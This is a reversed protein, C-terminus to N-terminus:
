CLGTSERYLDPMLVLCGCLVSLHHWGTCGFLDPERCYHSDRDMDNLYSLFACRRRQRPLDWHQDACGLAICLLAALLLPLIIQSTGNAAIDKIPCM